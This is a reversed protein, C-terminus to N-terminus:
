KKDNESNDDLKKIITTDYELVQLHKKTVSKPTSKPKQTSKGKTKTAVARPPPPPMPPMEPVDLSENGYIINGRTSAQSSNISYHNLPVFDSNNFSSGGDAKSSNNFSSGGAKSSNIFSHGGAKSSDSFSNGGGAKSTGAPLILGKFYVM